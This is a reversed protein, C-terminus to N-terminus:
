GVSSYSHDVFMHQDESVRDGGGGWVPALQVQWWSAGKEETRLFNRDTYEHTQVGDLWMRVVGNPGDDLEVLVEVVHWQGRVIEGSSLGTNPRHLRRRNETEASGQIRGGLTIPGSGAGGLAVYFQFRGDTWYYFVKNAFSTQHGQFNDSLRIAFRHYLKRDGNFSARTEAEIPGGGGTFGQRYRIRLANPPSLPALPDQIIEVNARGDEENPRWGEAGDFDQMSQAFSNFERADRFTFGAPENWATPTGDIISLDIAQTAVNGEVDAVYFTVISM